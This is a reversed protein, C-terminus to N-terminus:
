SGSNKRKASVGSGHQRSTLCTQMETFRVLIKLVFKNVAHAESQSSCIGLRPPVCLLSSYLHTYFNQVHVILTAAECSLIYVNRKVLQGPVPNSWCTSLVNVSFRLVPISSTDHLSTNVSSRRFFRRHRLSDPIAFHRHFHLTSGGFCNISHHRVLWCRAGLEYVPRYNCWIRSQELRQFHPLSRRQLLHQRRQFRSHSWSFRSTCYHEIGLHRSCARRVVLALDVNRM